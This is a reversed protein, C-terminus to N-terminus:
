AKRVARRSVPFVGEFCKRVPGDLVMEGSRRGADVRLPGGKMRLILPLSEGYRATLVRAVAVAGSGCARTEGPTVGREFTRMRIRGKRDRNWLNINAGDPGFVAATRLDRGLSEWREAGLQEVEAVFHPVGVITRYGALEGVRGAARCAAPKRREHRMTVAAGARGASAQHEGDRTVITLTRSGAGRGVRQWAIARLGNGCVAPTSGDPNYFDMRVRDPAGSLVILGDAGIGHIPDCTEKAVQPWDIAADHSDGPDILIFDNGTASLKVFPLARSTRIVHAAHPSM